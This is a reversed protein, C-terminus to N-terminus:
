KMLFSGLRRAHRSDSHMWGFIVTLVVLLILLCPNQHVGAWSGEVRM